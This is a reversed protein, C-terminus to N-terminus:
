AFFLVFAFCKSAPFTCVEFALKGSGGPAAGLLFRVGRRAPVKDVEFRAPAFGRFGGWAPTSIHALAAVQFAEMVVKELSLRSDSTPACSGEDQLLNPISRATFRAPVSSSVM